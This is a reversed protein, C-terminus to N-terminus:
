LPYVRIPIQPHIYACVCRVCRRLGCVCMTLLRPSSYVSSDCVVVCCLRLLAVVRTTLTLTITRRVSYLRVQCVYVLLSATYFGDCLIFITQSWQIRRSEKEMALMFLSMAHFWIVTAHLLLMFLSHGGTAFRQLLLSSSFLCLPSSSFPLLFPVRIHTYLPQNM